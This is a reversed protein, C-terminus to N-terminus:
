RRETYARVRELLATKTRAVICKGTIVGARCLVARMTGAKINYAKCVASSGNYEKIEKSYLEYVYMIKTKGGDSGKRGMLGTSNVRGFPDDYGEIHKLICPEWALMSYDM